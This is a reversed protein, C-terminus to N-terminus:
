LKRSAELVYKYAFWWFFFLWGLTVVISLVDHYVIAFLPHSYAFLGVIFAMRFINILYTGLVGILVILLIPKPAKRTLDDEDTFDPHVYLEKVLTFPISFNEKALFANMDALPIFSNMTISINKGDPSFDLSFVRAIPEM